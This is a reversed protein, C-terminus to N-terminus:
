PPVMRGPLKRPRSTSMTDANSDTPAKLAPRMSSSSRWPMSHVAHGPGPAQPPMYVALVIADAMSAIPMVRGPLAEM